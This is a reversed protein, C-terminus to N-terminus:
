AEAATYTVEGNEGNVALTGGNTLAATYGSDSPLFNVVEDNLREAASDADAKVNLGTLLYHKHNNNRIQGLVGAIFEASGSTLPVNNLNVTQYGGRM